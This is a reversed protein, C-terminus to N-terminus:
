RVARGARRPRRAKRRPRWSAMAEPRLGLDLAQELLMALQCAPDAEVAREAALRALVGDGTCWATWATLTLPAVDYPALARRSLQRWLDLAADAVHEYVWECCADRILDDALYVLLSAATEDDLWRLRDRAQEEVALRLAVIGHERWPGSAGHREVAEALDIEARGLAPQLAHRTAEDLPELTLAVSERDPLAVLGTVTAAVVTPSIRGGASPLATGEATCCDPDLCTYSWWRDGDVLLGDLFQVGQESMETELDRVLTQGPLVDAEGKETFCFVVGTHVNNDRLYSAVFRAFGPRDRVKVLDYRTVSEVEADTGDLGLVVLSERPHFGLLYPVMEIMEPLTAM